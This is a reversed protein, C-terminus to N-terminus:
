DEDGKGFLDSMVVAKQDCAHNLCPLGFAAELTRLLSFHTYRVSSQVGRRGNNTDVILNTALNASKALKNIFPANPNNFIQGYGHNEMMILFIHDYHRVGRPREGEAAFLSGVCLSAFLICAALKNM